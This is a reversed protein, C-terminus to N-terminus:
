HGGSNNHRRRNQRRRAKELIGAISVFVFLKLQQNEPFGDDLDKLIRLKGKKRWSKYKNELFVAVIEDTSMDIMKFSNRKAQRLFSSGEVGLAADHTRKWTYSKGNLSMQYEGHYVMNPNHVEVYTMGAPSSPDGLGVKIQRSFKPFHAVGVVPAAEGTTALHELDDTHGTTPPLLHLTIDPKKFAFESVEIYYLPVKSTETSANSDTVVIGRTMVKPHYFGYERTDNSTLQNTFMPLDKEDYLSGEASSESDRRYPPPPVDGDSADSDEQREHSSSGGGGLKSSMSSLMTLLVIYVNRSTFAPSLFNRSCAYCACAKIHERREM